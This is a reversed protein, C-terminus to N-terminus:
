RCHVSIQLLSCTHVAQFGKKKEFGVIRLSILSHILVQTIQSPPIVTSGLPRTYNIANLAVKSMTTYHTQLVKARTGHWICSLSFGCPTYTAFAAKHCCPIQDKSCDYGAATCTHHSYHNLSRAVACVDAHLWTCVSRTFHNTKLCNCCGHMIMCICKMHTFMSAVTASILFEFFSACRPSGSCIIAAMYCRMICSYKFTNKLFEALLNEGFQGPM